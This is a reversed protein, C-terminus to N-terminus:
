FLLPEPCVSQCQRQVQPLRSSRWGDGSDVGCAGAWCFSVPGPLGGFGTISAYVLQPFDPELSGYDLGYKALGGPLFNELLVDSGAALRRIVGPGEPHKLDVCVSKKNRNVANNPEPSPAM